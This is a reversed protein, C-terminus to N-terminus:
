MHRPLTKGRPDDEVESWQLALPNILRSRRVIPAVIKPRKTLAYKWANMAHDNRDQPKDVNQGLTNKNWYYDVIENTFWECKSSVFMRPAGYNKTIPHRHLKDVILYSGCKELGTAVDNAGKQFDIGEERFMDSVSISVKEKSAQKARFIDPDAFPNETPIIGWARRTEKISLAQKPIKMTPAYFGDVLFLDGVSNNFILMYVSASAQGYDYGEVVGLADNDLERKIFDEMISQEVVHVTEDYEPFILGEYASWDGDIFRKANAGRFVSRMRGVYASSTNHQNARSPANFVKVIPAKTEDDILLKATKMKTKEYVFYPSVVERFLWNRTPNAGFRFWQPGFRPMTPDDGLYKATGRLRGILDEFDKYSFEPDDLQDILICDYTASLLNSQQEGKGKGEQRVHRFEVTSGTEAMVINNHRDTPWKEVWDDPFWKLLEPKTSDELKPRTARGCLVRAGEYMRAITVGIIGLAATKGNGFGGTYGAIPHRDEYFGLQWPNKEEDFVFSINKSM